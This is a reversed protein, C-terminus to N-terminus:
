PVNRLRVTAEVTTTDPGRGALVELDLRVDVQRTAPDNPDASPVPDYLVFANSTTLTQALVKPSAGSPPSGPVCTGAVSSVAQDWRRIAWQGSGISEVAYCIEEDAEPIQNQNQDVWFHLRDSSSDAYVRRASRLETRIKQLSLRGDDIVAQWERQYNETDVSSMVVNFVATGLISSVLMAVLVEILTIGSEDRCRRTTASM